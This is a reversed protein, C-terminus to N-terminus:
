DIAWTYAKDSTKLPYRVSENKLYDAAKGEENDSTIRRMDKLKEKKM